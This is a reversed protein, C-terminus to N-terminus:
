RLPNEKVDKNCIIDVIYSYKTHEVRNEHLNYPLSTVVKLEERTELVLQLKQISTKSKTCGFVEVSFLKQTAM